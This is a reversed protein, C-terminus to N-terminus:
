APLLSPTKTANFFPEFRNIDEGKVGKFDLYIFNVKHNSVKSIESLLHFAFRTKGTGTSGAVAIHANNYKSSNLHLYIDKEQQTKGLLLKLDATFYDKSVEQNSNKVYELNIKNEELFSIGKELYDKLFDIITYKDDAEFLQYIMEVGHDIHTKIYRSINEDDKSIGYYQCVLAIFLTKYEPKFLNADKYEQGDSSYTSLEQQTFKKGTQLSFGLAIRAIINREKAGLFKQSLKIIRDQNEKSTKINILM